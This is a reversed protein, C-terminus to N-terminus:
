CGPAACCRRSSTPRSRSGTAPSRAAPPASRSPDAPDRPRHGRHARPDGRRPRRRGPGARPGAARPAGARLRRPGVRRRPVGPQRDRARVAETDLFDPRRRPAVRGPAGRGRREARRHARAPLRHRPRPRRGRPRRPERPRAARARRVRRALPEPREGRRPHPQGRLLRRQSRVGGVRDHKAELLVVRAAPNRRKALVATWLGCYGGGVVTLDAAADRRDARPVVHGPADELWFVAHRSPALAADVAAAPPALREYVTRSAPPM